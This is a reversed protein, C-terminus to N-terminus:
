TAPPPRACRPACSRPTRARERRRAARPRRAPRRRARAAGGARGRAPARHAGDARRAADAAARRPRRRRGGAAGRRVAPQGRQPRVPARRARARARADLIDALQESLESRSLRALEIRRASPDRELEALLPRLPHRRHLEDSRYTCVALVRETSMARAIFALFSRTSSDAWHIDELLLLVPDERGLRELLTLLAEFLRRQAVGAGEDARGNSGRPQRARAAAHGARRARRRRGRRAGPRRRALAAAAGGVLPAYPLEGEGLEVCEGCLTRAGRAKARASLESVLRSKGVGSEGAVFAISPHGDSAAAFAAELEALEGTRGILRTSTVRTAM